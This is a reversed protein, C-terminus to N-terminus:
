QSPASLSPREGTSFYQSLAMAEAKNMQSTMDCMSMNGAAQGSGDLPVDPCHREYFYFREIEAMLEDAPRGALAPVDDRTSVGAPGHCSECTTLLLEYHEPDIQMGDHGPLSQLEEAAAATCLCCLLLTALGQRAPHKRPTNQM